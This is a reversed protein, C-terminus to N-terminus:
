PSTWVPNGPGTSGPFQFGMQIVTDIVDCALQAVECQVQHLFAIDIPTIFVEKNKNVFLPVSRGEADPMRWSGHCIVNRIEAAKKIEEILKGVNETTNRINERVAKGYTEVLPKLTDSLAHELTPLWAAYAEDIEGPAYQRTGTYAFIAKRLVEELFGYTAVTRGLQEWFEPPHRNTPWKSPMSSRDLCYRKMELNEPM